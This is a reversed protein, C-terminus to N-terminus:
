RTAEPGIETLDGSMMVPREMRTGGGGGGPEAEPGGHGAQLPRRQCLHRRQGPQGGILHGLGDDVLAPLRQGGGDATVPGAAVPGPRQARCQESQLGGQEVEAHEAGSGPLVLGSREASRAACHADAAGCSADV